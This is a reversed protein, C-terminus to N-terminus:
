RKQFEPSGLLLGALVETRPSSQLQRRITEETQRSVDGALLAQELQALLAAPDTAAVPEAELKQHKGLHYATLMQEPDITVGPLRGNALLLAFNM